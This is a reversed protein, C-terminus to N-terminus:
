LFNNNCFKKYIRNTENRGLPAIELFEWGTKEYYGKHETM